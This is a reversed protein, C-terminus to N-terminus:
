ADKINATLNVDLLDFAPGDTCALLDQKARVACAFCAGVGCPLPPQFLAYALEAPIEVRVERLVDLLRSYFPMDHPPPAVSVIQHAWTLAKTRDAWEEFNPARVVEIEAPLAEVPYHRAAGILALAVSAGRELASSAMMLLAAPSSEAAILLLARVSERTPIPRGVPGILSVSQGPLYVRGVPREITIGNSSKAVPIWPERLYPDFYTDGVRALFLQGAAVNRHARDVAVDLRQVTASVRKVREIIAQSEQM